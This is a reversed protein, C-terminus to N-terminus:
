GFFVVFCHLHSQHRRMEALANAFAYVAVVATDSHVKSSPFGSHMPTKMHGICLVGARYNAAAVEAVRYIMCREGCSVTLWESFGAARLHVVLVWPVM